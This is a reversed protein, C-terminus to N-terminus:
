SPPVSGFSTYINKSTIYLCTDVQIVCLIDPLAAMAAADKGGKTKTDGAFYLAKTCDVVLAIYYLEVTLTGMTGSAGDDANQVPGLM